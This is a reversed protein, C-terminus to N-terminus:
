LINVSPSLTNEIRTKIEGPTLNYKLMVDTAGLSLAKKVLEDQGFNTLMVIPIQLRMENKIWALLALGDIKPLMIDLVILDYPNKGIKGMAEEGEMAIEVSMGSEELIEKYIDLVEQNDDVLLIKKDM